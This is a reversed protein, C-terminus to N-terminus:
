RRHVFFCCYTAIAPVFCLKLCYVNVSFPLFSLFSYFDDTFQYPSSPPPFARPYSLRQPPPPFTFSSLFLLDDIGDVVVEGTILSDEGAMTVGGLVVAVVVWM